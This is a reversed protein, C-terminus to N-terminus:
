VRRARNFLFIIRKLRHYPSTYFYIHHNAAHMQTPNIRNTGPRVSVLLPIVHDLIERYCAYREDTGLEFCAYSLHSLLYASMKLNIGRNISEFRRVFFIHSITMKTVTVDYTDVRM